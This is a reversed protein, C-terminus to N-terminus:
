RAINKPNEGYPPAYIVLVNVADTTATFVHREGAPFFCAEGPGIERKQGGVEVMARGELIYCVQEIGPHSHALAGANKKVHGLVVELQSAGVTEPGIIRKNVTETHNAPSYGKLKAVDVFYNRAM